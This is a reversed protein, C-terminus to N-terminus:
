QLQDLDEAFASMHDQIETALAQSTFCYLDPADVDDMVVRIKLPVRLGGHEVEFAWEREEEPRMTASIGYISSMDLGSLAPIHRQIRVLFPGLADLDFNMSAEHLEPM